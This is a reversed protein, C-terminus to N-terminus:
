SEERPMELAERQPLLQIELESVKQRFVAVDEAFFRNIEPLLEALQAAARDIYTQQAQTPAAWSSGLLFRARNIRSLADAEATYGKTKPPLWLRLELEGLAKELERAAAFLEDDEDRMEEPRSARRKSRIRELDARLEGFREVATVAVDQLRGLRLVAQWRAQRDAPSDDFRPDPLVEVETEATHEGLTLTVSYTGAPVEPGKAEDDEDASPARKFPDARLDWVVRNLGQHIPAEFKRVAAGKSHTVQIEIKPPKEEGEEGEPRSSEKDSARKAAKRTREKEDDPLPLDPQNLSVYLRAGYPQNEGRFEGHGPFRSSGSQAVYYQQAPAVPFLHLPEGLTSDSLERLPALDDLVFAGRGHTGLVLADHREQIALDMVSVTPVGHKWPMWSGGGDLSVWLGFETGLFLLERKKPDQALVLAYGRLDKTVLSKWTRGFDTTRYVYPKWDARRHNDFVVFAEGADFRSPEVHPIWTDNPIGPVAGEVSVWSAGGDRTVHLRGDDSGAWIVGREVPSPAITIVTTFNEAGTVDLTLGGSEAQRQWEPRDSTLDPSIVEWTEGRDTSRHVYQSGYYITKSDFPDLAIAANWNFRLGEETPPVSREPAPRISKQ